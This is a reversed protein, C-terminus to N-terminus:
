RGGRAYACYDLLGVRLGLGRRVGAPTAVDFTLNLHEIIDDLCPCKRFYRLGDGVPLLTGLHLGADCRTRVLAYIPHMAAARAESHTLDLNLSEDRM